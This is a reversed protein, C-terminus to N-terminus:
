AGSNQNAKEQEAKEQEAQWEMSGIAWNPKTAQPKSALKRDELQRRLLEYFGQGPVAAQVLRPVPRNFRGSRRAQRPSLGDDRAPVRRALARGGPHLRLRERHSGDACADAHDQRRDSKRTRSRPGLPIPNVFDTKGIAVGSTRTRLGDRGRCRRNRPECFRRRRRRKRKPPRSQRPAGLQSFVKPPARPRDRPSQSSRTWRCGERREVGAALFPRQGRSESSRCRHPRPVLVSATSESSRCIRARPCVGVVASTVAATRRCSFRQPPSRWSLLRRGFRGPVLPKVLYPKSFAM